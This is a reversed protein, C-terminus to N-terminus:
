PHAEPTPLAAWWAGVRVGFWDTWRRWRPMGDEESIERLIRDFVPRWVNRDLVGRRMLDYGEDHTFSGRMFDVTDLTPGSPGDSCYGALATLRSWKGAQGEPTPIPEVRLKGNNYYGDGPLFFPLDIWYDFPLRYLYGAELDPDGYRLIDFYFPSHPFRFPPPNQAAPKPWPWSFSM